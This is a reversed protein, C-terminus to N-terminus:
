LPINNPRNNNIETTNKALYSDITEKIIERVRDETLPKQNILQRIAAYRLSQQTSIAQKSKPSMVHGFHPNKQGRHDRAKKEPTMQEEDIVIHSM